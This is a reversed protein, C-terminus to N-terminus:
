TIKECHQQQIPTHLVLMAFALCAGFYCWWFIHFFLSMIIDCFVLESLWQLLMTIPNTTVLFHCLFSWFMIAGKKSKTLKM